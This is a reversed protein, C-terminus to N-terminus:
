KFANKLEDISIRYIDYRKNSEASTFANENNVIIDWSDKDWFKPKKEVIVTFTSDNVKNLKYPTKHFKPPGQDKMIYFLTDNSFGATLQYVTDEYYYVKNEISNFKSQSKCGSLLLINFAIFLFIQIYNKM